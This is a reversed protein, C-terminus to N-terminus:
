QMFTWSLYNGLDTHIFIECSDCTMFKFFFTLMKDFKCVIHIIKLIGEPTVLYRM